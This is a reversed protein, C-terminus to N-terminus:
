TRELADVADKCNHVCTFGGAGRGRCVATTCQLPGADVLVSGCEVSLDLKLLVLILPEHSEAWLDLDSKHSHPGASM